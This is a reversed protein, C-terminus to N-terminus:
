GHQHQQERGGGHVVQALVKVKDCQEYDLKAKPNATVVGKGDVLMWDCPKYTGNCRCECSEMQYVLSHNGDKDKALFSGLPGTDTTNEKVNVPKTPQFEPREDNVDLVRIKVSVEAKSGSLDVAEVRLTFNNPLKEYDLQIDPDVNIDGRYGVDEAVTRIIFSGFSGDLINFSIRNFDWTQDRDVANVSGVKAGSRVVSFSHSLTPTLNTGTTRREADIRKFPGVGEHEGKAGEKVSFDYSAKGFIPKNDNTDQTM